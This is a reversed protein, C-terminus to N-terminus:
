FAFIVGAQLQTQWFTDGAIEVTLTGDESQILTDGGVFTFLGRGALYLGFNETPFLRVGGGIGLSFRTLSNSGSVDPDIHTAGVTAVVFPQWWNGTLIYTGGLHYYDIDLDFLTPGGFLGEDAQLETRQRSLFFEIQKNESVRVDVMGGYCATDDVDYDAGTDADEFGGSFGYGFFPTIEVSKLDQARAAAALGAAICAALAVWRRSM